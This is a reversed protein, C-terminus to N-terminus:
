KQLVLGLVGSKKEGDVQVRYVGEPLVSLDMSLRDQRFTQRWVERGLADYVRVRLLDTNGPIRLYVLDTAPNPWIQMGPIAEPQKQSLSIEVPVVPSPTISKPTGDALIGEANTIRLKLSDAQAGVTFHIIGVQGFGSANQGNTRVVAVPYVGSAPNKRYFGMMNVGAQGLWSGPYDVWFSGQAVSGGSFAVGLHFGYFSEETEGLLMPAAIKQGPYYPGAPMQLSMVAGSRDDAAATFFHEEGFNQVIVLSSKLWKHPGLLM